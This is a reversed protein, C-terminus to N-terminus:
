MEMVRWGVIASRKTYVVVKIKQGGLKTSIMTSSEQKKRQCGTDITTGTAFSKLPISHFCPVPKFFVIVKHFTNLAVTILAICTSPQPHLRRMM